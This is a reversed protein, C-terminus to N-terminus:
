IMEWEAGGPAEIALKPLRATATSGAPKRAASIRKVLARTPTALRLQPAAAALETGTKFVRVKEVLNAAQEQLAGAAAAAEEVLAANQQTVQDMQVIAQNIQEIGATQEPGAATIENIVDSVRKVSAVVKEMTEGARGVLESGAKVQGVSNDILAKIEKAAGASRQALNRVEAAVVAFGRGQEGARAAEVAANLALINTQFAIGDIVGIIEVIKASSADITNMTDVVQAVVAGGESAIQSASDALASAQRSNDANHQVTSTLEEMSSATEELSAAQQETRSSLDLNGSSIQQSATAITEAGVRVQNVIQQLNDNMAKLAQLLLGTEDTSTSEIRLTLDGAAVRQAVKVAQAIPATISRTVLWAALISLAIVFATLAAIVTAGFKVTDTIAQGTSAAEQRVVVLIDQWAKAIPKDAGAIAKDIEEISAGATKMEVAKQMATRYLAVGKSVEDLSAKEQDGIAGTKGYAAVGSEIAAMDQAFKQDYDGGRL